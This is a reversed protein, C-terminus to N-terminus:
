PTLSDLLPQAYSGINRFEKSLLFDGCPFFEKVGLSRLFINRPPLYLGWGWGRGKFPPSLPPSIVSFADGRLLRLDARGASVAVSLTFAGQLPAGAVASLKRLPQPVGGPDKKSACRFGHTCRVIYGRSNLPSPKVTRVAYGRSNLPSPKVTRVAYGRSNFPSRTATM